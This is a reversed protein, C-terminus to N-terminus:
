ISLNLHALSSQAIATSSFLVSALSFDTSLCVTQLYYLSLTPCGSQSILARVKIVNSFIRALPLLNLNFDEVAEYCM